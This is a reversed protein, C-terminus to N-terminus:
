GWLLHQPLQLLLLLLRLYFILQQQLLLLCLQLLCWYWRLTVNEILFYRGWSVYRDCNIALSIWLKIGLLWKVDPLCIWQGLSSLKDHILSVLLVRLHDMMHVRHTLLSIVSIRWGKNILLLQIWDLWDEIRHYWFLLLLILDRCIHVLLLGWEIRIELPYLRLRARLSPRLLLWLWDSAVSEVVHQNVRCVLIEHLFLKLRM